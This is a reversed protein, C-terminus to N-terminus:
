SGYNCSPMSMWGGESISSGVKELWIQLVEKRIM